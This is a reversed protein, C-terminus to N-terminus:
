KFQSKLETKNKNVIKYLLREAVYSESLGRSRTDGNIFSTEDLLEEDGIKVKVNLPKNTWSYDGSCVHTGKGATKSSVIQVVGYFLANEGVSFCGKLQELQHLIDAPDAIFAMMNNNRIVAAKNLVEKKRKEEALLYDKNVKVKDEETKAAEFIKRYQQRLENYGENDFCPKQLIM